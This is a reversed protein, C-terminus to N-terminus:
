DHPYGWTAAQEQIRPLYAHLDDLVDRWKDRRPPSLAGRLQQPSQEAAQLVDQSHPCGLRSTLACLEEVPKAVMDEYRVIVDVLERDDIAASNCAEYQFTSVGALETARLGQWGPPLVYRWLRSDYDRLRLPEPLLYSAGRRRRWGELLSAVTPPGDRIVLVIKADPYLARLYPIRLVNKPTKDLVRGPGLRAFASDLYRKEAPSTDEAGLADSRWGHRRPHNYATWYAHGEDPMSVLCPHRRLLDFLLTTGSRPCGVLFIPSVAPRSPILRARAKGYSVQLRRKVETRGFDSVQRLEAGSIARIRPESVSM